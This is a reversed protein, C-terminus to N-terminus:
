GLHQPTQMVIANYEREYTPTFSSIALQIPLRVAATFSLNRRLKGTTCVVFFGSVLASLWVLRDLCRM